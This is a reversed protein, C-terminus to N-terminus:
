SRKGRESATRMGAQVGSDNSPSPAHAWFEGDRVGPGEGALPSPGPTLRPIRPAHAWGPSRNRRALRFACQLHSPFRDHSEHDPTDRWTMVTLCTHGFTYASSSRLSTLRQGITPLEAPDAPGTRRARQQSSSRSSRIAVLITSDNCRRACCRSGVDQCGAYHGHAHGCPGRPSGRWGARRPVCSSRPSCRRVSYRRSHQQRRTAATAGPSRGSVSYETHESSSPLRPRDRTM